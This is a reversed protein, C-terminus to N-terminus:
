KLQFEPLCMIIRSLNASKVWVNSTDTVDWGQPVGNWKTVLYHELKDIADPDLDIPGLLNLLSEVTSRATPAVYALFDGASIWSLGPDTTRTRGPFFITDALNFRQIMADNTIFGLNLRWGFVNPPRMLDMGMAKLARILDLNRTEPTGFIFDSGVIKMSGILFEAPNKVLGLYARDSLFEESQFIARVLEGISHDSAFYVDTFKEITAKDADNGTDLPYVFFEFIRKVLFRGTARRNALVAIVDQGAFAATQGYITKAGLDAESEDLFWEYTFPSKDASKRFRWGAFARAIEKVDDETYNPEGTVVDHTGMTFLEQLERAFNENPKAKTSSAGDLWILMAPGQSVRLLLDDFRALAFRRLDLNQGYMHVVPVKDLSTAFYNHWFLTMEEEFPRDTHLMRAIWWSRLETENFNQDDIGRSSAANLFPFNAALYSDLPGTDVKQYDVLHNVASIQKAGKLNQIASPSGGFAMRRLLHAAQKYSLHLVDIGGTRAATEM